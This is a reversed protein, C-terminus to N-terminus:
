GVYNAILILILTILATIPILNYKKLILPILNIIIIIAGIVVNKAAFEIM